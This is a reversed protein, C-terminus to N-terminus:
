KLYKAFEKGDNIMVRAHELSHNSLKGGILRAIEEVRREGDIKVISTRTQGDHVSKEIFFHDNAFSAIQSLHTVCIVQHNHSISLLKQAIVEAIHGSVGTDIEDFIMTGAGMAQGGINKLGLMLRSMEGGSAVNSLPKVPWGANATFLFEIKDLGNSDAQSIDLEKFDVEFKADKMGLSVLENTMKEAFERAVSKRESRLKMGISYLKEELTARQKELDEIIESSSALRKYEIKINDLYKNIDEVSNGYKKKLLSLLDLRKENEEAEFENFYLNDKLNEISDIIDILEFKVNDLRSSIEALEKVYSSVGSIESSIRGILESLSAGNYGGGQSLELAHKVATLIKEQSLVKVRFEKLDEEEGLRFNASEIEDIQYKYLEMLREREQSDITFSSLHSKVDKLKYLINRFELLYPFITNKGYEDLAKIHSSPSLLTQHQFQGHLDMLPSSITKLMSLTFVKGNVRCENRGDISIKRSIIVPEEKELGYEALMDLVSQPCSTFVAEVYAFDKGYSILSKDAREGLLLSISDIVLSKGAGTEGTLCNLGGALEITLNDILAINTISLSSLM